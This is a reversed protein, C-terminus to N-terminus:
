YFEKIKEVVFGIQEKTLEAFMPLSLVEPTIKETIPFASLKYGLRKYAPQQHIAFPYHIGTEIENEKLHRQLADRNKVRVVYLHYVHKGRPAEYPVIVGSGKLLQNYTEANKRRMETWKEIHKLKANLIAAQITDMRHNFGEITSEYKNGPKRGHDRLMIIKSAIEENNTVVAGADGYAGLNKGPFFSYCATEGYPLKKGKYEACHAQCADEIVILGKEKALESIAAMDAPQGYLHVPIIAKTKSTIAKKIEDISINYTKEDIDVAVFKAGLSSVAEATAIFTHTPIIVEDGKGIDYAKLALHLAATGSGVGVCYKANCLKAFNQEFDSIPKGGIFRSNEICSAIAEDIEHKISKYQAKLNVLPVRM